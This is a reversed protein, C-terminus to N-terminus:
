NISQLQRSHRATCTKVNRPPAQLGYVDYRPFQDPQMPKTHSLARHPPGQPM